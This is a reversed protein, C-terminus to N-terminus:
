RAVLDELGLRRPTDADMRGLRRKLEQLKERLLPDSTLLAKTLPARAVAFAFTEAKDEEPGSTAYASVFGPIDSSPKAAWAGRLTRGGSGYVFKPANLVTWEPDPSLRGDDALDFFHFLEHHLSRVLDSEVSSVDLLLLGGVNPLSPIAMEGETLDQTLVIGALRVKRLFSTPYRALERDVITAARSARAPDPPTGRVPGNALSLEFRRTSELLPVGSARGRVAFGFFAADSPLPTTEDSDSASAHTAAIGAGAALAVSAAVFISAPSPKM